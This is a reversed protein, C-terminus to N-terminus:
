NGPLILYVESEKDPRYNQIWGDERDKCHEELVIDKAELICQESFCKYGVKMEDPYQNLYTVLELVTM